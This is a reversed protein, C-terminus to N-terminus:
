KKRWERTGSIESMVDNLAFKPDIDPSYQGGTNGYFFSQCDCDVPSEGCDMCDANCADIMRDIADYPEYDYTFSGYGTSGCIRGNIFDDVDNTNTLNCDFIAAIPRLVVRSYDFVYHETNFFIKGEKEQLCHFNLDGYTQLLETYAKRTPDLEVHKFSNNVADLLSFKNNIHKCGDVTYREDFNRIFNVRNVTSDKRPVNSHKEAIFIMYDIAHALIANFSFVHHLQMKNDDLRIFFEKSSPIIVKNLYSLFYNAHEESSNGSYIVRQQETNENKIIAMIKLKPKINGLILLM